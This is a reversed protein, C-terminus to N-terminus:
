YGLWELVRRARYTQREGNDQVFETWDAGHKIVERRAEDQSVTMRGNFVEDLTM